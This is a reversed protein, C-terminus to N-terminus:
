VNVSLFTVIPCIATDVKVTSQSACPIPLLPPPPEKYLSVVWIHESAFHQGYGTKSNERAGYSNSIHLIVHGSGHNYNSHAAAKQRSCMYVCVCACVCTCVCLCPSRTCVYSCCYKGVVDSETKSVGSSRWSGLVVIISEIWELSTPKSEAHTLTHTHTHASTCAYLPQLPPPTRDM